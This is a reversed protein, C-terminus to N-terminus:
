PVVAYGPCKGGLRTVVVHDNHPYRIRRNMGLNVRYHEVAASEM